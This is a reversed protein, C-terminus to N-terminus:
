TIHGLSVNDWSRYGNVLCSDTWNILDKSQYKCLGDVVMYYVSNARVLGVSILKSDTECDVPGLVLYVQSDQQLMYAKYSKNTNM